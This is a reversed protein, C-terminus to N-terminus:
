VVIVYCLSVDKKVAAACKNSMNTFEDLSAILISFKAATGLIYFFTFITYNVCPYLNFYLFMAKVATRCKVTLTPNEIILM